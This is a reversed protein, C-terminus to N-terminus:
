AEGPEGALVGIAAPATPTVPPLTGTLTWLGANDSFQHTAMVPYKGVRGYAWACFPPHALRQMRGRERFKSAKSAVAIETKELKSSM